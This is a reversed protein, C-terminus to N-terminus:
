RASGFRADENGGLLKGFDIDLTDIEGSAPPVDGANPTDGVLLVRDGEAVGALVEVFRHNQEGLEVQRSEVRGGRLVNVVMMGDNEFIANVPLRVVDEREGVLIDVRATM